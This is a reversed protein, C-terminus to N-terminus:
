LNYEHTILNFFAKLNPSIWKDKHVAAFIALVNEFEEIQTSDLDGKELEDEIVFHPLMSKGLGCLVSKKIAEISPLEVKAISPELEEKIYAEIMPRWSCSYETVLMTEQNSRNGKRGSEILSLSEDKMKHISLDNSRWDNKEVLLAVDIEGNKLQSTVNEYQIPKLTLAVKPYKEKYNMVINPLWYIMMSESAGITLQGAPEVGTHIVEKSKTYLKIIELAFPLFNRGAETLTINKGLRDFLPQGLEDELEKIHGTVSSQAYGLRDAAKKFGGADVITRFTMLHRLEM